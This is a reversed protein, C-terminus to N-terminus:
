TPLVDFDFWVVDGSYGRVELLECIDGEKIVDEAGLWALLASSLGSESCERVIENEKSQRSV